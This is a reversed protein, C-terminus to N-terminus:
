KFSRLITLMNQLEGQFKKVEAEIEAIMVDDRNIRKIWISLNDPLRPDYSIFDCWARKGCLMVTQMQYIYDRKITGNILTDLHTATNPCKIEISGDDNVLGDPSAGCDAITEHDIFGVQSVMSGTIAEYAARALPETETGHEMAGSVFREATNGTLIEAILEAMYNKRSALYAGKYGPVIDVVRSASVKGRKYDKWEDSGQEFLHIM